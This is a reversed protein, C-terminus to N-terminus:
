RVVLTPCPAHEVIKEADSGFLFHKWGAYGHTSIILLDASLDTAARVIRDRPHLASVKLAEVERYELRARALLEALKKEAEEEWGQIEQISIGELSYDAASPEPVVHLLTLKAGLRRALQIAYAVAKESNPSFDTPALIRDVSFKQHGSSEPLSDEALTATNVNEKM